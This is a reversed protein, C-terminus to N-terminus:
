RERKSLDVKRDFGGEFIGIRPSRLLEERAAPVLYGRAIGDIDQEWTYRPGRGATSNNAFLITDRPDLTVFFRGDGQIHGYSKQGAAADCGLIPEAIDLLSCTRMASSIGTRMSMPIMVADAIGVIM